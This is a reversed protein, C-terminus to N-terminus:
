RKYDTKWAQVPQVAAGLLKQNDATCYAAVKLPEMYHHAFLPFSFEFQIRIKAVDFERIRIILKFIRITWNSYYNLLEFKQIKKKKVTAKRTKRVGRLRLVRM